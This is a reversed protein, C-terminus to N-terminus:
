SLSLGALAIKEVPLSLSGDIKKKKEHIGRGPIVFPPMVAMGTYTSVNYMRPFYFGEM